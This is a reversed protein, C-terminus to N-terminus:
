RRRRNPGCLGEGGALHAYHDIRRARELHDSRSMLFAGYAFGRIAFGYGPTKLNGFSNLERCARTSGRWRIYGNSAVRGTMWRLGRSTMRRVRKAVIGRPFYVSYRQAYTIGAMQYRVDYGGLEPNVGSSTQNNLAEKVARRGHNRFRKSRVLEGTLGLAAGTSYGSHTYSRNRSKFGAWAARRIMHRSARTLRRKYERLKPKFRSHFRSAQILLASHAVAETFFAYAETQSEPLSGDRRQRKWAFDFAKFGRRILRPRERVLGARVYIDGLRQDSVDSEGFELNGGMAGRRGMPPLNTYEDRVLLPMGELRLDLKAQRTGAEADRPLALALAALVALGVAAAALSM